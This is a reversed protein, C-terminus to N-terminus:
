AKDSGAGPCVPPRDASRDAEKALRSWTQAMQLMVARTHMDDTHRAIELCRSAFWRYQESRGMEAKGGKSDGCRPLARCREPLAAFIIKIGRAQRYARMPASTKRLAPFGSLRICSLAPHSIKSDDDREPSKYQQM